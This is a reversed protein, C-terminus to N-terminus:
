AKPRGYARFAIWTEAVAASLAEGDATWRGDLYQRNALAQRMPAARTDLWERAHSALGAAGEGKVARAAAEGATQGSLVAPAIGGGTVPHTLGAADGALLVQGVQVCAVTGGTPIAGGSRGAADAASFGLRDLLCALADGPRGGMELNVAVGVNATDGKPFLWGYGGPYGPDFYVETCARPAPLVVEVQAAHVFHSQRQGVWGGVTSYPGDAGVVVQARVGAERRGRRLLVEHGDWEVARWGVRLEAGARHALVALHRDFLARELVYGRFPRDVREGNPLTTRMHQIEQAICAAPIPVAQALQWPVFEACQVPLGIQRRREVLLVRVGGLAAQRAACCGAPGAGVVVVDFFEVDSM